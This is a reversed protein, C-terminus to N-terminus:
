YIWPLAQVPLTRKAYLRVERRANPVAISEEAAEMMSIDNLGNGVVAANEKNYGIYQLIKRVGSGKDCNEQMISLANGELVLAYRPQNVALNQEICRLKDVRGLITIKYIQADYRYIKIKIAPDRQLQDLIKADLPLLWKKVRGKVTYCYAGNAFVGGSLLSWIKRCKQRVDEYSRSSAIYIQKTRALTQLVQYTQEAIRGEDNLITGDLDFFFVKIRNRDIMRFYKENGFWCAEEPEMQNAYALYCSCRRSQCHLANEGGMYVNGLLVKSINCAFYDGNSEMFLSQRGGRCLSENRKRVKLQMMFLPDIRLFDQIEEKRYPRRLGDLKNLWFYIDNPLQRRLSELDAINGAIAVAGVCYPIAEEKLLRCAALFKETEVMSPHYSGWLRIKSREGHYREILALFDPLYFSLNTQCGVARVQPLTTLYALTEQYYSHIMAEGFPTIMLSVPNTAKEIVGVLKQLAENDKTLEKSSCAHKCFPCYACQYNCSKLSGRYYLHDIKM